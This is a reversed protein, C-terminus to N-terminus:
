NLHCKNITWRSIPYQQVQADPPPYPDLTRALSIPTILQPTNAECGSNILAVAEDTKSGREIRLEGKRGRYGGIFRMIRSVRCRRDQDIWCLDKADYELGKDM